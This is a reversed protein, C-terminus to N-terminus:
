GSERRTEGIDNAPPPAPPLSAARARAVSAIPLNVSPNPLGSPSIIHTLTLDARYSASCVVNTCQMHLQRYTATLLRSGYIRMVSGCHPCPISRGRQVSGTYGEGGM